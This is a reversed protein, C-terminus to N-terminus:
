MGDAVFLGRITEQYENYIGGWEVTFNRPLIWVKQSLLRLNWAGMWLDPTGCM